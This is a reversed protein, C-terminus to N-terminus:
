PLKVEKPFIGGVGKGDFSAILDGNILLRCESANADIMLKVAMVFLWLFLSDFESRFLM